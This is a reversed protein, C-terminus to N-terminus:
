RCPRGLIELQRCLEDVSPTASANPQATRAAEYRVEAQKRNRTAVALAAEAQEARATAASIAEEKAALEKGKEDAVAKFRDAEKQLRNIEAEYHLFDRGARWARLGHYSFYLLALALIIALLYWLPKLRRLTRLIAGTKTPLIINNM